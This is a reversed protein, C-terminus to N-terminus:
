KRFFVGVLILALSAITLNFTDAAGTAPLMAAAKRAEANNPISPKTPAVPTNKVMAADVKDGAAANTYYLDVQYGTLLEQGLILSKDTTHIAGVKTKDPQFTVDTFAKTIWSPDIRQPTLQDDVPWQGQQDVLLEQNGRIIHQVIKVPLYKNQVIILYGTGEVDKLKNESPTFIRKGNKDFLQDHKWNIATEPVKYTYNVTFVNNIQLDVIKYEKDLGSATMFANAIQLDGMSPNAKIYDVPNGDNMLKVANQNIKGDPTRVYQGDWCQQQLIGVWIPYCDVGCQIAKASNFTLPLEFPCQSATGIVKHNENVVTGAFVPVSCVLLVLTLPLIVFLKKM